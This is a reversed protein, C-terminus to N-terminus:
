MAGLWKVLATGGMANFLREDATILSVKLQAALVLYISDYVTRDHTIAMSLAQELLPLSSVTTFGRSTMDALAAKADERRIRGRRAARWLMNGIEAWFLDPVVFDIKGTQYDELLRHAEPLLSEDAGSLMWKAAVSADVVLQIM